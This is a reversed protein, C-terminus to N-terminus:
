APKHLVGLRFRARRSITDTSDWLFRSRKRPMYLKTDKPSLFAKAHSLSMYKKDPFGVLAFTVENRMATDGGPTTLFRHLEEEIDSAWVGHSDISNYLINYLYALFTATVAQEYLLLFIDKM